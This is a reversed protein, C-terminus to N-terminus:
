SIGTCYGVLLVASCRATRAVAPNNSTECM